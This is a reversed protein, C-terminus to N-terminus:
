KQKMIRKCEYMRKDALQEVSELADRDPIYEAYGHAIQLPVPPNEKENYAKVADEMKELIEEIDSVETKESVVIFEDGGTRYCIGKNSFSDRICVAAAMIHKDGESHGHVDNVTKLYNIDLQVIICSKKGTRIEREKEHFAARNALETLGDTYAMKEMFEAREQEVALKGREKILYAGELVVFVLVGIQTFQSLGYSGNQDLWYRIMDISVGLLAATMGILTMKVFFKNLTKLRIARAMLFVVMIMAAGINIHALILLDHPDFIGFGSLLSNAALNISILVIMCPLLKTNKNNTASAMFSVPPYAIFIICLYSLMKIMEPHNTFTQLIYTDNASWTGVLVAFSALSFFNLMKSENLKRTTFGMIMMVIGFAVIIICLFFNFMGQHYVDAIFVAADEICVSRVDATKGKYIPHLKLTITNSDEPISIMHVYLGYSAGFIAAQKPAYTYVTNGDFAIEIWTDSSKMCISKNYKEINRIDKTLVVDGKPLKNLSVINGDQDTWSNTMDTSINNQLSSKPSFCIFAIIVILFTLLPLLIDAWM